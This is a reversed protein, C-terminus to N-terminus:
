IMGMESLMVSNVKHVDYKEEAIVRSRRGMRMTAIPDTIMKQMAAVLGNVSKVPVLLGNDGDIVTERCGPADTTIIPRGMAMAELVSRPTGERYSPLVYVNCAQIASRVDNLRGLYEIDGRQIWEDLEEQKIANPNDDIWGVLAFTVGPFERRIKEAALAYERVGKDGLLRAILLFRMKGVPPESYSFAAVDVGSGNVIKTPVVAPLLRARRFLSEDDPNQFFVKQVGSLAVKYLSRVVVGLLKRKGDGQFAYGLGTILVFRQPVGAIRAAISGYISPKVTYSLVYTPQIRLLLRVLEFLTHLDRSPNIGTRVLAIEHVTYGREELEVRLQSSPPLNPAAVHVRLGTKSFEALLPGRFTM